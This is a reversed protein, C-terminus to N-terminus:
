AVAPDAEDIGTPYPGFGMGHAELDAERHLLLHLGAGDQLLAEDHDEDNPILLADFTLGLETLATPLRENLDTLADIVLAGEEVELLEDQLMACM